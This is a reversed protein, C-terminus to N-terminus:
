PMKKSIVVKLFGILWLYELLFMQVGGFDRFVGSELKSPICKKRRTVPMSQGPIGKGRPIRALNGVIPSSSAIGSIFFGVSETRFGPLNPVTGLSVVFFFVILCTLKLM